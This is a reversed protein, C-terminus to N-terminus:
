PGRFPPRCVDFPQNVDYPQKPPPPLPPASAICAWAAGVGLLVAAVMVMRRGIGEGRQSRWAGAICPVTLASFVTLSQLPGDGWGFLGPPCELKGTRVLYVHFVAVSLGSVALPLSALCARPSLLGDMWILMILVLLAAIAFSRQYFCLPCAKLGLGLSLYLSGGVAIAALALAVANCMGVTRYGTLNGSTSSSTSM